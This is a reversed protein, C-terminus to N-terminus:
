AALRRALRKMTQNLERNALNFNFFIYIYINVGQRQVDASKKKEQQPLTAAGRCRGQL